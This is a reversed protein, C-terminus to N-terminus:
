KVGARRESMAIKWIRNCCKTRKIKAISEESQPKNSGRDSRYKYPREHGIRAALAKEYERNAWQMRLVAPDRNIATIIEGMKKRREPTLNEVVIKMAVRKNARVLESGMLARREALKEPENWLRKHTESMKSRTEPTYRRWECSALVERSRAAHDPSLKRGSLSKSLKTRVEDTRIYQPRNRMAEVIAATGEESRPRGMSNYADVMKRVRSPDNAHLRKQSASMKALSEATYRVGVNGDGGITLNFGNGSHAYTNHSAIMARECRNAEMLSYCECIVELSFWEAGYKRIANYFASKEGSAADKKHQYWRKALSRKTLGVYARGCKGTAKYIIWVNSM